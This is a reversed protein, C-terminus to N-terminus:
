SPRCSGCSRTRAPEDVATLLRATLDEAQDIVPQRVTSLDPLSASAHDDFRGRRDAATRVRSSRSRSPHSGLGGILGASLTAVEAPERAIRVPRAIRFGTSGRPPDLLTAAQRRRRDRLSLYRVKNGEAEQRGDHTSAAFAIATRSNV